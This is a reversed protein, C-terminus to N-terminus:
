KFRYMTNTHDFDADTLGVNLKLNLYTYEEIVPLEEGAKTPFGYAVYRIPLQLEDDVFVQALHFDLNPAAQSNKFQMMTCVRGNVKANNQFVVECRNTGRRRDLEGREILKLVLNEMGVDTIPYRNGRMAIIGNTKLWVTPLLGGTPGGEHAIMKDSNAGEIYMVERGKVSAPKVFQMYVSFPVTKGDRVRRHRIKTQMFEYDGLTGSVRERKVLLCTYDDIRHLNDLGMRAWIMAGDFTPQLQPIQPATRNAVRVMPEKLDARPKGGDQAAAAGVLMVLLSLVGVRQCVSRKGSM